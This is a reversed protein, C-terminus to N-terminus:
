RNAADACYDQDIMVEGEADLRPTLSGAWSRLYQAGSPCDIHVSVPLWGRSDQPTRISINGVVIFLTVATGVGVSLAMLAAKKTEPKM